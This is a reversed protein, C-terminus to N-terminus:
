KAEPKDPSDAAAPTLDLTLSETKTRYISVTGSGDFPAFIQFLEVPAVWSTGEHMGERLQSTDSVSLQIWGEGEAEFEVTWFKPKEITGVNISLKGEVENDIVASTTTIEDLKEGTPLKTRTLVVQVAPAVAPKEKKEEAAPIPLVAVITALMLIRSIKM